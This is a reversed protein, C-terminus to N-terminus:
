MQKNVAGSAGTIYMSVLCTNPWFLRTLKCLIYVCYLLMCGFMILEFVIDKDNEKEKLKVERQTYVPSVRRM